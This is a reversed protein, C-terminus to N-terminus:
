TRDPGGLLRLTRMRLDPHVWDASILRHLGEDVEEPSHRSISTDHVSRAILISLLHVLHLMPRPLLAESPAALMAKTRHKLWRLLYLPPRAHLLLDGYTVAPPDIQMCAAEILGAEFGDSVAVDTSIRTELLHRFIAKLDERAWLSEASQDEDSLWRCLADQRALFDSDFSAPM